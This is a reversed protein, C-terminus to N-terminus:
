PIARTSNSWYKKSDEYIVRATLGRSHLLDVAQKETLGVVNPRTVFRRGFFLRKLDEKSFNKLYEERIEEDVQYWTKYGTTDEEGPLPYM